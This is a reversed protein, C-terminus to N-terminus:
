ASRSWTESVPDAPEQREVPVRDRGNTPPPPGPRWGPDNGGGGDSGDGGNWILHWLAFLVLLPGFAAFFGLVQYIWNM